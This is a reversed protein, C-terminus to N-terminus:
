DEPERLAYKRWIAYRPLHSQDLREISM